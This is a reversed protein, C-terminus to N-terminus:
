EKTLIDNNAVRASLARLSDAARQQSQQLARDGSAQSAALRTVAQALSDSTRRHASDSRAVSARTARLEDQLLRIDGKTAFCGTASLALLSGAILRSGSM